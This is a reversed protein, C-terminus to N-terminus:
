QALYLPPLLELGLPWFVLLFSTRAWINDSEKWSEFEDWYSIPVPNTPWETKKKKPAHPTIQAPYKRGHSANNFRVLQSASPLPVVPGAILFLTKEDSFNAKYTSYHFFILLNPLFSVWVYKPSPITREGHLNRKACLWIQQHFFFEYNRIYYSSFNVFYFIM